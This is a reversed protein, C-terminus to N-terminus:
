LRAEQLAELYAAYPGTLLWERARDTLRLGELMGAQQLDHLLQEVKEPPV